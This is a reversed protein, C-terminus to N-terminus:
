PSKISDTVTGRPSRRRSSPDLELPAPSGHKRTQSKPSASSKTEEDVVCLPSWTRIEVRHTERPMGETPPSIVMDGLVLASPAQRVPGVDFRGGSRVRPTSFCRFLREAVVDPWWIGRESTAVFDSPPFFDSGRGPGAAAPEVIGPPRGRGHHRAPREGPGPVRGHSRPRQRAIRGGHIPRLSPRSVDRRPGGEGGPGLVGTM